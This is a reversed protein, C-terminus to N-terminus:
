EVWKRAAGEDEFSFSKLEIGPIAKYSTEALNKMWSNDTVLAVKDIKKMLEKINKMYFKVDEWVAAAEMGELGMFEIYINVKKRSEIEPVFNKMAEEFAAKDFKGDWRYALVKENTFSLKQLM